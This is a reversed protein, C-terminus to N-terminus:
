SEFPRSPLSVPLAYMPRNSTHLISMPLFCTRGSVQVLQTAATSDLGSTPEDLFIVSPSAILECAIALRKREGGSIGRVKADGVVTDAAKELNLEEILQEVREAQAKKSILSGLKLEVRFALTERVTMHPFFSIEQEVFAAPVQSDGTIPIGNIYRLGSLQLKSSEKIRGALAHITTSKGSGSPGMIALMRGPRARGRISGDLLVRPGGNKGNKKKNTSLELYLDSFGLDVSKLGSMAM